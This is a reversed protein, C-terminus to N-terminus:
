GGRTPPRSGPTRECLAKKWPAWEPSRPAGSHQSFLRRKRRQRGSTGSGAPEPVLRSRRVPIEIQSKWTRNLICGSSGHWRKRSGASFARRGTRPLQSCLRRSCLDEPAPASLFYRPVSSTSRIAIQVRILRIRRLLTDPPADPLREANSARPEHARATGAPRDGRSMRADPGSRVPTDKALRYSKQPTPSAQRISLLAPQSWAGALRLPLIALSRAPRNRGM